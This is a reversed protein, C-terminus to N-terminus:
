DRCGREALLIPIDLKQQYKCINCYNGNINNEMPCEKFYTCWDKKNLELNYYKRGNFERTGTPGKSM